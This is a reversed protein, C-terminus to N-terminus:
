EVELKGTKKNLRVTKGEVLVLYAIRLVTLTYLGGRRFFIKKKIADFKDIVEQYYKTTAGISPMKFAVWKTREGSSTHEVPIIEIDEM